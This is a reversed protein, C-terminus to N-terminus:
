APEKWAKAAAVRGRPGRGSNAVPSRRGRSSFDLRRGALRQASDIGSACGGGKTPAPLPPPDRPRPLNDLPSSNELRAPRARGGEETRGWLPPPPASNAVPPDGPSQHLSRQLRTELANWLAGIASEPADKSASAKRAAQPM